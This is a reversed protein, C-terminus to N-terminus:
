GKGGRGRQLATLIDECAALYAQQAFKPRSFQDLKAAKEIAKVLRIARAHEAKLLKVTRPFNIVPGVKKDHLTHPGILKLAWVLESM